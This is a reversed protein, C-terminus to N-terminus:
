LAMLVTYMVVILDNHKTQSRVYQMVVVEFKCFYCLAKLSLVNGVCVNRAVHYNIM